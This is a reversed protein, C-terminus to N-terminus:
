RINKTPVGDLAKAPVGVATVCPPVDDIVVAGAGVVSNAGILVGQIACAGTGIHAGSDVHVCGSLVVGPAIHVHAGVVCDHDIIAGTNVIANTGVSSGPQLIAGAMIQVGDSLRVGSAIIASPHIVSVFSYGKASFRDYTKQRPATSGTSGIGNVLRVEEPRYKDVVEDGGLHKVSLMPLRTGDPDTFGLIQRQAGLLMHVLVKAHDGGGLVIIPLPKENQGNIEM